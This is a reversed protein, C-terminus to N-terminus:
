ASTRAEKKLQRRAQNRTATLDLSTAPGSSKGDQWLKRLRALEDNRLTRKWEWERLAERIVESTTAYEGSDVAAKVSSIQESTLAVSIKEVNPM